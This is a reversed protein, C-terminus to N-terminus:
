EHGRRIAEHEALARDVDTGRGIIVRLDEGEYVGDTGGIIGGVGDDIRHGKRRHGIPLFPHAKERDLAGDAVPVTPPPFAALIIIEVFREVGAEGMHGPVDIVAHAQTAAWVFWEEGGVSRADQGHEVGWGDYASVPAAGTTTLSM